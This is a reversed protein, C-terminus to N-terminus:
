PNRKDPQKEGVLHGFEVIKQKFFHYFMTLLNAGQVIHIMVALLSTIFMFTRPEFLQPRILMVLIKSPHIILASAHVSFLTSAHVANSYNQL